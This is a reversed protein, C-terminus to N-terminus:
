KVGSRLAAHHRRARKGVLHDFSGGTLKSCQMLGSNARKSWESRGSFRGTDLPNQQLVIKLPGARLISELGLALACHQNLFERAEIRINRALQEKDLKAVCDLTFRSDADRARFSTISGFRDEASVRQANTDKKETRMRFRHNAGRVTFYCGPLVVFGASLGLVIQKRARAILDPLILSVYQVVCEQDIEILKSRSPECLELL